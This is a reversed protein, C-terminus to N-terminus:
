INGQVLHLTLARFIKDISSNFNSMEVYENDYYDLQSCFGGYNDLCHIYSDNTNEAHLSAIFIVIISIKSM